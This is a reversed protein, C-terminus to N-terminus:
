RLNPNCANEHDIIEVNLTKFANHITMRDKLNKFIMRDMGYAVVQTSEHCAMRAILLATSCVGIVVTYYEETLHLELPKSINLDEYSDIAYEHNPDRPHSKYFIKSINKSKLFSHIGETVRHMDDFSMQRDVVLPQGIVLARPEVLNIDREEYSGCLSPMTVTIKQDYEHPFGPLLYIRDVIATDSGIRDGRFTYYDLSPCVVRRAKKAYQLIEKLRGLPHRRTNLLGDPIIRVCFRSGPFSNILHNIFYNIAETDITPTHLRIESACKCVESVADLNNRTRRLRGFAGKEPYFRPWPLFDVFDWKSHDVLEKFQPKLYFLCNRADREFHTAVKEAALYHLPSYILFINVATPKSECITTATM